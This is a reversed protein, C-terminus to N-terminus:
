VARRATGSASVSLAGMPPPGPDLIQSPLGQWQCFEAWARNAEAHHALLVGKPGLSPWAKRLEFRARAEDPGNDYFFLGVPGGTRLIEELRDESNGLVLTWRGRLVPAVLQGVTGAPVGSARGAIPGPGLSVLEGTGNLELAALMWATSYGPRVGTEVVREPRLARVLLYLLAGQPLERTMPLNAGRKLLLEPLGSGLLEQRYTRLEAATAGTLRLLRDISAQRFFLMRHLIAKRVAPTVLNPARLEGSASPVTGGIPFRPAPPGTPREPGHAPQM